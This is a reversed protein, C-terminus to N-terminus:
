HYVCLISANVPVTNTLSVPTLLGRVYTGYFTLSPSFWTSTTATSGTHTITGFNDLNVWTDADPSHQLQLTATQTGTLTLSTYCDATYSLLLRTTGTTVAYVSKAAFIQSAFNVAGAPIAQPAASAQQVQGVRAGVAAGVLLAVALAVALVVRTLRNM